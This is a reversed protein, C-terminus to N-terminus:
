LIHSTGQIKEWRVTDCQLLKIHPMTGSDRIDFGIRSYLSFQHSLQFYEIHILFPHTFQNFLILEKLLENFLGSICLFGFWISFFVFLFCLTFIGIYEVSHGPEGPFFVLSLKRIDVELQFFKGRFLGQIFVNRVLLMSLFFWSYAKPKRYM